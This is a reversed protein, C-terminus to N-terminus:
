RLFYTRSFISDRSIVNIHHFLLSEIDIKNLEETQMNLISTFYLDDKRMKNYKLKRSFHDLSNLNYFDIKSSLQQSLLLDHETVRFFYDDQNQHLGSYYISDYQGFM